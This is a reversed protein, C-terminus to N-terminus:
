DVDSLPRRLPEDSGIPDGFVAQVDIGGGM